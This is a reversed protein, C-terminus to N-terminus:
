SHAKTRRQIQADVPGNSLELQFQVPGLKHDSVFLSLRVQIGTGSIELIVLLMQLILRPSGQNTDLCIKKSNVLDWFQPPSVIGAGLKTRWFAFM